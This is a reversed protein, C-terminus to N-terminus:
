RGGHGSHRPRGQPARSRRRRRKPRLPLVVIGVVAALAVVALVLKSPTRLGSTASTREPRTALLFTTVSQPAITAIMTRSTGDLAPDPISAM